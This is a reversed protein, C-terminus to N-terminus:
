ILWDDYEDFMGIQTTSPKSEKQKISYCLDMRDKDFAELFTVTFDKCHNKQLKKEKKFVYGILEYKNKIHYYINKNKVRLNSIHKCIWSRM